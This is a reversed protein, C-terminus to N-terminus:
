WVPIYGNALKIFYGDFQKYYTHITTKIEYRQKIFHIFELKCHIKKIKLDTM